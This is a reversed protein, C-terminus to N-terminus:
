SAYGIFTGTVVSRSYGVRSADAVSSLLALRANATESDLVVKADDVLAYARVTGWDRILLTAVDITSVFTGRTLLAMM